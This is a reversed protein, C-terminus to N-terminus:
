AQRCREPAGFFKAVSCGLVLAAQALLPASARTQGREVADLAAPAIGLANAFSTATFGALKRLM